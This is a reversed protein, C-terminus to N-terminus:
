VSAESRSLEGAEPDAALLAESPGGGSAIQRAPLPSIAEEQKWRREAGNQSPLPAEKQAKQIRQLWPSALMVHQWLCPRPSQSIMTRTTDPGCVPTHNNMEHIQARVRLIDLIQQITHWKATEPLAVRGQGSQRDGVYAAGCPVHHLHLRAAAADCLPGGVDDPVGVLLPIGAGPNSRTRGFKGGFSCASM